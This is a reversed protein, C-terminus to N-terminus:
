LGMWRCVGCGLGIAALTCVIGIQLGYREKLMVWRRKEALREPQMVGDVIPKVAAAGVRQRFWLILLFIAFAAILIATFTEM